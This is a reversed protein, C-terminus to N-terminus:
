KRNDRSNQLKILENRVKPKYCFTLTSSAPVVQEKESCYKFLNKCIEPLYMYLFRLVYM